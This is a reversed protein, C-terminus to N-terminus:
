TALGFDPVKAQGTETVFDGAQHRSSHNSTPPRWGADVQIAIDLLLELRLPKGGIAQQLSKRELLEMAIFPQRNDKGVEYISCINPHNLASAARAERRFRERLLARTATSSTGPLLLGPARGQIMLGKPNAM